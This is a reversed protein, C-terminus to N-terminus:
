VQHIREEYHLYTFNIQNIKLLSNLLPCLRLVAKEESRVVFLTKAAWIASPSCYINDAKVESPNKVSDGM